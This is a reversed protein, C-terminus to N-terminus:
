VKSAYAVHLGEFDQFVEEIKIIRKRSDDLKAKLNPSGRASM